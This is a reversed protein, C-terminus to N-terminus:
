VREQRIVNQRRKKKSEYLCHDAKGIAHELDNMDTIKGSYIGYSFEVFYPKGSEANRRELAESRRKTFMREFDASGNPVVCVFEDGGLRSILSGEPLITRLMDSCSKIAYDGEAHGFTDNIQKLHDLDAFVMCIEDNKDPAQTGRQEFLKQAQQFLGRRNLAGTLSDYESVIVLKRKEEEIVEMHSMLQNRYALEVKRGEHYSLSNGLQLSLMYYYALEDLEVDCAIVGYQVPGSFLLFILFTHRKGDDMFDMMTDKGILPRDFMEYSFCEGERLYSALRLNDPMEFEADDYCVQPTDFLFMYAGRASSLKMCEMVKYCFDRDNGAAEDLERMFFPIFWSKRMEQMSKQRMQSIMHYADQLQKEVDVTTMTEKFELYDSFECGCSQRWRPLVPVRINKGEGPEGDIEKMLTEVAIKGMKQGDQFVTTLPPDMEKAMACDDFGTLFLDKGVTLGREKCVRYGAFSMEDNAFVIADMDPHMDLLKEVEATVFESYDGEVIMDPTVVLGYAKCADLYGNLREVADQNCQPGAVHGIKQCHHKEVLHSVLDYIGQYNNAIISTYKSGEAYDTLLVLPRDDYKAAFQIVNSNKLYIGITGHNLIVGDAGSLTSYDYITNFQYDYSQKGKVNLVAEYFDRTQTGLFFLVNADHQKCGAEIGKILEKPLFTNVGGILVNITKKSNGM